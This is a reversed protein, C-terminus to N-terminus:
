PKIGRDDELHYKNKIHAASVIKHVVPFPTSTISTVEAEQLALFAATENKIV